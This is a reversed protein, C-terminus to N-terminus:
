WDFYKHDCDRSSGCWKTEQLNPCPRGRRAHRVVTRTRIQEGIGCTKSCNSWESWESVRCDRPVRARRRETKRRQDLKRGPGMKRGRRNKRYKKKFKDVFTNMLVNKGPTDVTNDSADTPEVNEIPESTKPLISNSVENDLPEAGQTTDPTVDGALDRPSYRQASARVVSPSFVRALEYEKVKIIHFTAIPPHEPVDPYFFSNAPHDPSQATIRSVAKKPITPWNPSTFTFGNDTGADLPDVELVVSEVWKGEVCLDFSDIGIFWDPSPVVRSILSVKSHNGDVFCEAQTEGVGQTIPPANFEDLIGGQGQSQADLVETQGLEAFQKLGESATEGMRFLRFSGSHSRGVVKSWQAPPRWEPYQKPFVERSWATQLLVKYVTLKNPDCSSASASSSTTNTVRAEVCVGLLLLVLTALSRPLTM